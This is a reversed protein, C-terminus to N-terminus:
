LCASANGSKEFNYKRLVVAEPAYHVLTDALVSQSGCVVTGEVKRVRALMCKMRLKIERSVQHDMLRCARWWLTNEWNGNKRIRPRKLNSLVQM